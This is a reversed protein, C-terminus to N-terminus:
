PASVIRLLMATGSELKMSDKAFHLTIEGVLAAKGSHVIHINKLDHVGCADSSFVWLAQPHDDGNVPGDCGSGPNARVHVLVGGSVGKGVKQKARNRVMGGDGYRIDGGIQVTDAWGAPTGADTGTYPTQAARVARLSAVARLSTAFTFTQQRDQLQNFKLTLNAGVGDTDRVVSVLLGRVVSKVRIKERNPLPVDQAIRGEVVGGPQADKLSISTELQVPLVTGVPIQFSSEVVANRASSLPIAPNRAWSALQPARALLLLVVLAPLPRACRPFQWKALSKLADHTSAM